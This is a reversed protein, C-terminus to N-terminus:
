RGKSFQDWERASQLAKAAAKEKHKRQFCAAVDNWSEAMDRAVSPFMSAPPSALSELYRAAEGCREQRVAVRSLLSRACLVHFGQEGEFVAAMRLAGELTERALSFRGQRFQLDGLFYLMDSHTRSVPNPTAQERGLAERILPEGEEQNGELVLVHGLWGKTQTVVFEEGPLGTGERRNLGSRLLTEAADLHGTWILAEAQYILIGVPTGHDIGLRNELVRLGSNFEKQIANDM